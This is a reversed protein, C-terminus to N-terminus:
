GEFAYDRALRVTASFDKNNAPPLLADLLATECAKTSVDQAITAYYFLLHPGWQDLMAWIRARNRQAKKNRYNVLRSKLTATSVDGTEGVYLVCAHPLFLGPALTSSDLVFAYVGRKDVPEKKSEYKLSQWQLAIPPKYDQWSPVHLIFKRRCARFQRGLEEWAPEGKGGALDIWASIAM